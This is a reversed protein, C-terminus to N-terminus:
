QTDIPKRWPHSLNRETQNDVISEKSLVGRFIKEKLRFPTSAEVSRMTNLIPWASGGFNGSAIKRAFDEATQLLSYRMGKLSRDLYKKVGRTSWEELAADLEREVDSVANPDINRVRREIELLISKLNEIDINRFDPNNALSKDSNRVMSVLVARLARDRARSAFPTVSTAEVDKYLAQHITNFTEFHSRDRAKMANFVCVVLGPYSSRGVRSTSQIYESRTKPQGNVLMLGLRPVDVGVSVMNTALVVDVADDQDFPKSLDNLISVIERQSVRSTLEKPADIERVRELRRKAYLEMSDPVDDLVQVIAGGLERLANFYMLLTTYGDVQELPLNENSVTSQLLSGTVGQVTFKASRGATTVGVYLRGPKDKDVVAFGSDDFDLGSPPFQCSERDFLARVQIAARRITATSGIVKPKKGNKTLLWDFATEYLGVITGLPGSILHLEDQIILDTGHETQFGFAKSMEIKTPLQAFKDVTGIILTPENAYIDDDVTIVPWVGFGVGIECNPTKCEPRITRLHNDYRWFLKAQCSYCNRLQEASSEYDNGKHALGDDYNNPTADKGVWLGISFETVSPHGSSIELCLGKRISECALIVAAAREFQQATLLRLTYRMIAFNGAGNAKTDTLRRYWAGTAILALYAETKGGGTPFWLLDLTERDNSQPNCVSEIAMLVFGMQFPRWELNSTWGSQASKWSHQRHMAFNAYKFAKLAQKDRKLFEIGGVIRSHVDNCNKLNKAAAKIFKSDITTSYEIQQQIWEAYNKALEDLSTFIQDDSHCAIKEASLSGSNVLKAFVSHGTQKFTPVSYTPVWNTEVFEVKAEQFGWSASSQHGFAYNLTNRYLLRSSEEDEDFPERLDPMGALEVNVGPTVKLKTQFITLEEQSTSDEDSIQTRNLLTVTTLIKSEFKVCRIHLSIELNSPLADGTLALFESMEARLSFVAVGYHQVRQWVQNKEKKTNKGQSRYTGFSYSINITPEGLESLVAFSLGMASPRQQGAISLNPSIDDDESEGESGDDEILSVQTRSPWLIGTIYYDSPKSSILESDEIPGLLDQCLRDVISTRVGIAKM